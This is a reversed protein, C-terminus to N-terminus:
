ASSPMRSRTRDRPSPSTYLLCREIYPRRLKVPLVVQLYLTTGDPCHYRRYLVGNGMVLSDWQSFLVRAEEPYDRLSGRPPRVGDTLAQIVPQLNDDLSQAECIDDLSISTPEATVGLIQGLKSPPHPLLLTLKVGKSRHPRYRWTTLHLTLLRLLFPRTQLRTLWLQFRTM